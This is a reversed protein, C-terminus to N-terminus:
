GRLRCSKQRHRHDHGTGSCANSIDVEIVAEYTVREREVTAAEFIPEEPSNKPRNAPLRSSM